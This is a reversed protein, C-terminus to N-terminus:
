CRVPLICLFDIKLRSGYHFKNAVFFVLFCLFLMLVPQILKSRSNERIARILLCKIRSIRTIAVENGRERPAWSSTTETRSRFDEIKAAGDFQSRNDREELGQFGETSKDM